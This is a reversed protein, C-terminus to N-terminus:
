DEPALRAALTFCPGPVTGVLTYPLQLNNEVGTGLAKQSLAVSQPMNIRCHKHGVMSLCPLSKHVPFDKPASAPMYFTQPFIPPAGVIDGVYLM